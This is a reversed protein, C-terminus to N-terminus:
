GSVIQLTRLCPKDHGLQRLAIYVMDTQPQEVIVVWQVCSRSVMTLALCSHVTSHIDHQHMCMNVAGEALPVWGRTSGEAVRVVQLCLCSRWLRSDPYLNLVVTLVLKFAEVVLPSQHHQNLCPTCFSLM